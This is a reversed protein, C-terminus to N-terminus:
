LEVSQHRKYMKLHKQIQLNRKKKGMYLIKCREKNNRRALRKLMNIKYQMLIYKVRPEKQFGQEKKRDQYLIIFLNLIKIWQSKTLKEKLIIKIKEKNKIQM